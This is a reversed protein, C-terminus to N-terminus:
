SLQTRSPPGAVRLYNRCQNVNGTNSIAISYEFTDGLRLLGNVADLVRIQSDLSLVPEFISVSLVMTATAIRDTGSGVRVNISTAGPELTQSIDFQDIDVGTEGCVVCADGCEAASRCCLIPDRTCFPAENLAPQQNITANFINGLPNDADTLCGGSDAPDLDGDVYIFEEAHCPPSMMTDDVRGISLDGELAYIGLSGQAPNSISSGPQLDVSVQFGSITQLGEFISISTLPLAPDEVILLLAFSAAGRTHLQSMTLCTPPNPPDDCVAELGNCVDATLDSVTYTGALIGNGEDRIVDTVDIPTVFFAVNGGEGTPGPPVYFGTVAPTKGTVVVPASAGPPQFSVTRDAAARALADLQEVNSPDDYSLNPTSFIELSPDTYDLGDDLLSGGIYLVAEVIKARTPLQAASLQLSKQTFLCNVGNDLGQADAMSAGVFVFANRGRVPPGRVDFSDAAASSAILCGLLSSLTWLITPRIRM